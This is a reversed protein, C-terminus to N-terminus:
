RPERRLVLYSPDFQGLKALREFELVTLKGGRWEILGAERLEQVVRNVHVPSLGCADALQHQTLPLPCTEREALGVSRYRLLLECFLCAVQETATRRGASVIWNRHIAADILTTLWLLRSLHPFRESLRKLGDHPVVALRAKTVSVIDHDLRKLLFSHLDVFDGPVHLETIQRRGDNLLKSRAVVGDLLLRSSTQLVGERVVDQDAAYVEEGSVLSSLAEREDASVADRVELKRVLRDTAILQM